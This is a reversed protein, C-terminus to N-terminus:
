PFSARKSLSKQSPPKWRQRVPLCFPCCTPLNWPPLAEHQQLHVRLFCLTPRHRIWQQQKLSMYAATAQHPCLTSSACSTWPHRQGQQQALLLLGMPRLRLKPPPAFQVQAVRWYLYKQNEQRHLSLNLVQLGPLLILMISPGCQVISASRQLVGTIRANDGEKSFWM